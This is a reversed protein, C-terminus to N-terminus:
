VGKMKLGRVPAQLFVNAIWKHQFIRNVLILSVIQCVTEFDFEEWRSTHKFTNIIIIKGNSRNTFFFFLCFIRCLNTSYLFFFSSKTRGVTLLVARLPCALNPRVVYEALDGFKIWMSTALRFSEIIGWLRHGSIWRNCVVAFLHGNVSFYRPNVPM